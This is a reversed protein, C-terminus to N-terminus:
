SQQVRFIVEVRAGGEPRNEYRIQGALDWRGLNDVLELGTHADAALDFGEPFGPGDDCVALTALCEDVKFSISVEGRGHKMANSLLESAVLALSTSQRPTLRADDMESSLRRGAATQAYMEMLKELVARAAATTTEGAEGAEQTLIDHVGALTRIHGALRRLEAVPVTDRDEMLQMDLMAAVIQLNNKVRHHTERMARRLRENLSLIEQERQMRETVDLVLSLISRLKGSDDVLSSNYWECHAVSGDKRYNRNASFRHPARGTQLDSSVDTVQATDEDYIWRFDEMRKGLVEEATWGFIREAAGSWRILRMDPGWEIVALPSNDVHYTLRQTLERLATESQAQDIIDAAQRALLDLLRLARDDPRGPRKYHTTFMGLPMGSRGVLPTSQVARVGARNQIELEPTGRFIPSQQVDEVIVREGRQLATGCTGRGESVSEWFDLWWQPFGKQAVIRLGGCEPDVLQINGFDAGSIAIAADVIETLVPELDGGRLFFAGLKQLRTMADLDAQIRAQARQVDALLREREQEARKRETTDRGYLNVYGHEAIPVVSFSLERDGCRVDLM